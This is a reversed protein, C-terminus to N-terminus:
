RQSGGPAPPEAHTGSPAPPLKSLDPEAEHANAPVSKPLSAALQQLTPTRAKLKVNENTSLEYFRRGEIWLLISVAQKTPAQVVTLQAPIGNVKETQLEAAVYVGAGGVSLDRELLDIVTGQPTRFTRHLGAAGGEGEFDVSSRVLQFKAFPTGELAVPKFALPLAPRNPQQAPALYDYRQLDEACVQVYGLAARQKAQQDEYQAYAPTGPPPGLGCFVPEEARASAFPLVSALVAASALMAAIPAMRRTSNSNNM